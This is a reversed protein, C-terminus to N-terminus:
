SLPTAYYDELFNKACTECAATAGESSSMGDAMAMAIGKAILQTGEPVLVGHTGKNRSQRGACSHQGAAISLKGNLM